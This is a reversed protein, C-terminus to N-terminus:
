LEASGAKESGQKLIDLRQRIWKKLDPKMSKEMMGELRGIEKEMKEKDGGDKLWKDMYKIQKDSCSETSREAIDCRQSLTTSVFESLDEFSRGGQYDNVSGDHHYKITPYGQVGNEECLETEKGCDVDLIMVNQNSEEEEALRDWDPKMRKCHGCWDQFYKILGNKGSNLFADYSQRDLQQTSVATTTFFLLLTTPITAIYCFKM